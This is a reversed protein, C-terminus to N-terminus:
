RWFISSSSIPSTTPTVLQSAHRTYKSSGERLSITSQAECSGCAPSIPFMRILIPSPTVPQTALCWDTTASEDRADVSGHNLDNGDSDSSVYSAKKDTDRILLPSTIPTM